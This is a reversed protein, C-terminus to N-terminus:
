VSYKMNKVFQQTSGRLNQYFHNYIQFSIPMNLLKRIIYPLMNQWGISMTQNVNKARLETGIGIKWEVKEEGTKSNREM